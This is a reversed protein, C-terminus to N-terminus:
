KSAYCYSGPDHRLQGDSSWAGDYRRYVNVSTPWFYENTGVAAVEGKIALSRGFGEQFPESIEAEKTWGTASRRYIMVFAPGCEIFECSGFGTVIIRDLDAAIVTGLTGKPDDPGLTLPYHQEGESGIWELAHVAGYRGGYPTDASPATVYVFNRAAAVAWGFDVGSNGSPILQLEETWEGSIRRFVSASGLRNGGKLNGAVAIENSIAAACGFVGEEKESILEQWKPPCEDPVGDDNCDFSTPVALDCGDPIANGNCDPECDDPIGNANCDSIFGGAIDCDDPRSNDNCDAECSDVVGDHDCDFQGPSCPSRIDLTYTGMTEPSKSAVMVWYTTGPSLGEVCFHASRSEGPCGIEDDGCAIMRLSQCPTSGPRPDRYTLVQSLPDASPDVGTVRIAATPDTAVFTFWVTGYGKAGPSRVHCPFGPDIESQTAHLNSFFTHSDAEVPLASRLPNADECFDHDSFECLLGAAAVCERDWEVFCCYMDQRCVDHCCFVNSCGPHPRAVTCDGERSLCDVIPCSQGDHGCYQGRQWQRPGDVPAVASCQTETLNECTYDPRCCASLGCAQPFPDPLCATGDQWEPNLSSGRQPWPCNMRPVDRCHSECTGPSTCPNFENCFRGDDPGGDCQTVAMDCCAGVPPSGACTISVYFAARYRPDPFDTLTCLTGGTPIYGFSDSSSGIIPNMGYIVGASTNSVKMGFWPTRTNLPIPPEFTFRAHTLNTGSQILFQKFTGPIAPGNCDPRVDFSYLGSGRIGVEYAVMQCDNVDLTLDDAFQVQMGASYPQGTLWWGKYAVFAEPCKTGAFFQANFSAHPNSPFGGAHASCQFGPFDLRDDSFGVMAPTGIVVGCNERSFSIGLWVTSPLEVTVDEPIEVVITRPADDDFPFNGNTGPFILGPRSGIPVVGPCNNYLAYSVSFPGGTGIPNVKGTIQFEFRRLDCGPGGNITIDDSVLANAPFAAAFIGLTNSYILRLDGVGGAVPSDKAVSRDSRVVFRPFETDTSIPFYEIPAAAIKVAEPFDGTLPGLDEFQVGVFIVWLSIAGSM